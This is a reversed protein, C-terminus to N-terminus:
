HRLKPVPVRQSPWREPYIRDATNASRRFQAYVRSEVFGLTLAYRPICCCSAPYDESCHVTLVILTGMPLEGLWAATHPSHQSYQTRIWHHIHALRPRAEM